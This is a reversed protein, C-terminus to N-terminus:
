AFMGLLERAGDAINLFPEIFKFLVQSYDYFASSISSLQELM